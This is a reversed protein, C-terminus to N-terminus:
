TAPGEPSRTADRAINPALRWPKGKQKTPLLASLALLNLVPEEAEKEPSRPCAGETSESEGGAAPPTSNGLEQAKEKSVNQPDRLDTEHQKQRM